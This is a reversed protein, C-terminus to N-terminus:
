EFVSKLKYSLLVGAASIPLCFLVDIASSTGNAVQYSIHSINALSVVFMAIITGAFLTEQSEAIEVMSPFSLGMFLMIGFVASHEDSIHLFKCVFFAIVAVTAAFFLKKIM